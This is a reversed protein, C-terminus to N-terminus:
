RIQLQTIRMDKGNALFAVLAKADPTATGWAPLGDGVAGLDV